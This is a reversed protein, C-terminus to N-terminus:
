IVEIINQLFNFVGMTPSALVSIPFKIVLGLINYKKKKFLVRSKVCWTVCSIIECVDWFEM